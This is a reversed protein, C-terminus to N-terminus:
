PSPLCGAMPSGAIPSGVLPRAMDAIAAAYRAASKPTLHVGDTTFPPSSGAFQAHGDLLPLGEEHSLARIVTNYRSILEDSFTLAGGFGLRDQEVPLITCLLVARGKGQLQSVLSRYRPAWADLLRDENASDRLICDNIGLALVVAQPQATEVLSAVFDADFLGVGAGGVGANLVRFGDPLGGVETPCQLDGAEIHLSEIISDGILLLGGSAIQRAHELIVLRRVDAHRYDPPSLNLRLIEFYTAEARHELAQLRLLIDPSIAPSPEAHPSAQSEITSRLAALEQAHHSQMQQRHAAWTQAADQVLQQTVLTANALWALQQQLAIESSPTDGWENQQQLLVAMGALLTALVAILIASRHM